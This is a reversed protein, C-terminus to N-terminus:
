ANNSRTNNSSSGVRLEEGYVHKYGIKETKSQAYCYINHAIVEVKNWFRWKLTFM